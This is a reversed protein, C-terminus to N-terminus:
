RKRWRAQAAIKAKYSLILPGAVPGYKKIYANRIKM